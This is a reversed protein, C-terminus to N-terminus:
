IEGGTLLAEVEDLSLPKGPRLNDGRRQTARARDDAELNYIGIDLTHPDRQHVKTLRLGQNEAMQALRTERTRDDTV